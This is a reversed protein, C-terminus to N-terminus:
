SPVPGAFALSASQVTSGKGDEAWLRASTRSADLAAKLSCPGGAFLPRGSRYEFRKITAGPAAIRVTELLQLAILKGQVMLGPLKEVGASYPADYHIRHSNFTLASFRFLMVPDPSITRQWTPAPPPEEARPAREAGKGEPAAIPEMHVIDQEETVALGAPGSYRHRLTVIALHGAATTRTKVDTMESVCTVPQGVLLPEHFTLRAGGFMRRQMPVAPIQDLSRPLGDTELDARTPARLCFITHWGPPLLEGARPVRGSTELTVALREVVAPVVHDEATRTQGIGRRLDAEIAALDM